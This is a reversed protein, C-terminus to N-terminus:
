FTDRFAGLARNTKPATKAIAEAKAASFISILNKLPKARRRNLSIETICVTASTKAAADAVTM